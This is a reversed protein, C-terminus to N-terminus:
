RAADVLLRVLSEFGVAPRWGTRERLKTANGVLPTQTGKAATHVVRPDEIVHARWDLGVHDFAVQVFDGVTHPAGSAIVYDDPAAESVIRVMADVYDPAYGWDVVASLSGLVLKFAPNRRAERAGSVIRTTVFRPGRLPSEHNYLIGVSAHVGHRERYLACTQAGAVKTIAYPNRPAFPTAEDQPASAPRGFMQSSGAYFLRCQPSHARIGELVHLLGTVHVDLGARMEATEDPHEEASHHHAALYYIEDPSVRELLNAVEARNQLSIPHTPAVDALEHSTVIGVDLGLVACDRSRHEFLIRGDQGASGIIVVRRM